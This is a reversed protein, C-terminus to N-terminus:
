RDEHGSGVDPSPDKALIPRKWESSHGKRSISVQWESGDALNINLVLSGIGGGLLSDIETVRGDNNMVPYVFAEAFDDSSFPFDGDTM